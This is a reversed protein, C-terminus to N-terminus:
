VSVRRRRGAKRASRGAAAVGSDGVLRLTGGSGAKVAPLSDVEVRLVQGSLDFGAARGAELLRAHLDDEDLLVVRGSERCVLRVRTTDNDYGVPKLRYLAKHLANWERLLLGREELERTTRYVTGVGVIVGRSALGRYIDEVSLAQGVPESLLQMVAIRITTPRIAAQRLSALIADVTM